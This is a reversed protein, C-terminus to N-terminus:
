HNVKGAKGFQDQWILKPQKIRYKAESGNRGEPTGERQRYEKEIFAKTCM